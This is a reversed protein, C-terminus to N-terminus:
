SIVCNILAAKKIYRKPAFHALLKHPAFHTFVMFFLLKQINQDGIALKKRLGRSIKIQDYNSHSLISTGLLLIHKLQDSPPPAQPGWTNLYTISMRDATVGGGGKTVLM